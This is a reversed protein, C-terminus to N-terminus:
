QKWVCYDYSDVNKQLSWGRYNNVAIIDAELIPFIYNQFDINDLLEKEANNWECLMSYLNQSSIFSIKPPPQFPPCYACSFFHKPMPLKLNIISKIMEFAVVSGMSYGVISYSEEPELSHLLDELLYECIDEICYQLPVNQKKGHGPYELCITEFVPSLM